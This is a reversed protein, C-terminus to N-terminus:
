APVRVLDDPIAGEGCFFFEDMIFEEMMVNDLVVAIM